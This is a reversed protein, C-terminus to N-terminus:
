RKEQPPKFFDPDITRDFCVRGAGHEWTGGGNLFPGAPYMPETAYPVAKPTRGDVGFESPAAFVACLSFQEGTTRIYEYPAGSGPDRPVAYGRLSDNLPELTDPLAGKAQWYNVLESQIGQVHGLRVSDFRKLRAANPSGVVFFGVVAVAAVIGIVTGFFIKM